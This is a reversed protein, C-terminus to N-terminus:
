PELWAPRREQNERSRPSMPNLGQTYEWGCECFYLMASDCNMCSMWVVSGDARRDPWTHCTSISDTEAGCEPCPQADASM